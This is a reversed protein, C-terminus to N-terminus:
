VVKEEPVKYFCDDCLQVNKFAENGGLHPCFDLDLHAKWHLWVVKEEPM